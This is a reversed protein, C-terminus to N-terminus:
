VITGGPKDLFSFQCTLVLASTAIILIIIIALIIALILILALTLIIFCLECRTVFSAPAFLSITFITPLDLDHAPARSWWMLMIIPEDTPNPAPLLGPLLILILIPRM